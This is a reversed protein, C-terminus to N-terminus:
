SEDVNKGDESRPGFQKCITIVLHCTAALLSLTLLLKIM